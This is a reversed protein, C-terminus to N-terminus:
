HFCEHVYLSWTGSVMAWQYISLLQMVAFVSEQVDFTFRLCIEISLRLRFCRVVAGSYYGITAADNAVGMRAIMENVYPFIHTFSVPEVLRLTCLALMQLKPLPTRTTPKDGKVLLAAEEDVLTADTPTREMHM